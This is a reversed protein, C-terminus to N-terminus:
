LEVWLTVTFSPSKRTFLDVVSAMYINELTNHVYTKSSNIKSLLVNKFKNSISDTIQSWLLGQFFM